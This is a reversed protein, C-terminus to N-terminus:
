SNSKKQYRDLVALLVIVISAPLLWGMQQGAFPLRSFFDPVWASLEAATLGDAVGFVLTVLLTGRFILPASHWCSKLLSLVVLVIALPYLGTLVPVSIQILQELGQNSVVWSFVTFFIVLYKYSWGFANSFFEGCAVLLGVATTLCALAIVLALLLNGVAGFAHQVYLALVQGGNAADSAISQSTAGLYFLAIYVVSLGAAAILGAFITYRTVMRESQVGKNRLATTIVVGFALAGLADMTLYGQLFGQLFAEQQYIDLAQGVTGAPKFIAASGLVVLALLLVPTIFTGIREVIKNPTIALFLVLAFYLTSYMLLGLRSSGFFPVVGIEYSVVATRPTAFFPGIALYVAIALALGAIKGLPQTLAPLGGGVRALAIVTLLPLGVGTLLFGLAAWWLTYGADLGSAAPFIINGAGLFLAFTMFGLAFVDRWNLKSSAAITTHM